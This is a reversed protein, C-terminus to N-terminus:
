SRGADSGSAPAPRRSPLTMDGFTRQVYVDIHARATAIWERTAKVAIEREAVVLQSCLGDINSCTPDARLTEALTVEQENCLVEYEDLVTRLVRPGIHSASLIRGLIQLRESEPDLKSTLWGHYAHLGAPTVRYQRRDAWRRKSIRPPRVDTISAAVYGLKELRELVCYVSMKGIVLFSGAVGEEIHRAIENPRRPAQITFALVVAQTPRLKVPANSSQMDISLWQLLNGETVAREDTDWSRYVPM